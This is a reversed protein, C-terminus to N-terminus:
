KASSFRQGLCTEVPICCWTLLVLLRSRMKKYYFFRLLNRYHVGICGVDLYCFHMLVVPALMLFFCIPFITHLFKMYLLKNCILYFGRSLYVSSFFRMIKLKRRVERCRVFGVWSFCIDFYFYRIFAAYILPECSLLMFSFFWIPIWMFPAHFLFDM